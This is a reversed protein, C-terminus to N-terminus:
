RGTLYAVHGYDICTASDRQSLARASEAVGDAIKGRGSMLLQQEIEPVDGVDVAGTNPLEDGPKSRHGVVASLQLQETEVLADLVQKLDGLQVGDEFDVVLFRGGDPTKLLPMSGETGLRNRRAPKEAGTEGRQNKRAPKEASTKGLRNKRAPKESGTKGRRNRRAPKESGTRRAPKEAGTKGLRNKQAPKEAGTKGLRNKRAPKESGHGSPLPRL